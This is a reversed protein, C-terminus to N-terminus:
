NMKRRLGSLSSSRSRNFSCSLKQYPNNIFNLNRGLRHALLRIRRSAKGEHFVSKFTCLWNQLVRSERILKIARYKGSLLSESKFICCWTIFWVKCRKQTQTESIIRYKRRFVLVHSNWALLVSKRMKKDRVDTKNRADKIKHFLIGLLLSRWSFFM